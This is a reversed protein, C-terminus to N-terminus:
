HLDCLDKKEAFPVLVASGHESEEKIAVLAKNANELNFITVTPKVKLESALKLFDQADKRTMNAVSRISKSKDIQSFIAAKM